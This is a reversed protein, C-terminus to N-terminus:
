KGWLVGDRRSVPSVCPRNERGAYSYPASSIDGVCLISKARVDKELSWGLFCFDSVPLRFDSNDMYATVTVQSSRVIGVEM